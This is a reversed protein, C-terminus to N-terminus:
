SFVVKYWTNSRCRLLSLRHLGGERSVLAFQQPVTPQPQPAPQLDVPRAVALLGERLKIQCLSDADAINVPQKLQWCALMTQSDREQM